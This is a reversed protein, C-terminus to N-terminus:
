SADLEDAIADHAPPQGTLVRICDEAAGLEMRYRSARASAGIHATLVVNDMRTMPGEYPESEFVDLAAGGIHKQLLGDTLAAEDVIPGRSTNILMVGTRMCGIRERNIFHRNAANLPIHLTILDSAKLLTPLDCWTVGPLPRGHVAPNTDTALIRAGFPELLRIVREGIRGVGIVGITLENVLRGMLRNWAGERVSRDSAQIHRVLNLINGLTLEAVGDSPAEPTYTVQINHAKCYHLDVSDLGIGVRCIAKLQQARSLTEANYPETGAIVADIGALHKEVDGAKLRRGYPNRHLTWGTQQLQELPERGTEGFPHTAILVNM